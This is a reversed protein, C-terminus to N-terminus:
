LSHRPMSKTDSCVGVRVVRIAGFIKMMRANTSGGKKKSMENKKIM